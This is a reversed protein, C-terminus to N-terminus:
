YQGLKKITKSLYNSLMELQKATLVGSNMAKLGFAGFALVLNKNSFRKVKNKQLKQFKSIKPTFLMNVFEFKLELLAPKLLHPQSGM